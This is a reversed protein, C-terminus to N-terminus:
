ADLYIILHIHFGGQKIHLCCSLESIWTQKFPTRGKLHISLGLYVLHNSLDTDTPQVLDPNVSPKHRSKLPFGHEQQPSPYHSSPSDTVGFHQFREINTQTGMSRCQPGKGATLEVCLCRTTGPTREWYEPQNTVAISHRHLLRTRYNWADVSNVWRRNHIWM